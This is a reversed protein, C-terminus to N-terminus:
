TACSKGGTDPAQINILEVQSKPGAHSCLKVARFPNIGSAPRFPVPYPDSIRALDEVM